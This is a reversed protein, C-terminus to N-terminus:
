PVPHGLRPLRLRRADPVSLAHRVKEAMGRGGGLLVVQGREGCLGRLRGLVQRVTVDRVIVDREVIVDRRPSVAYSLVDVALV